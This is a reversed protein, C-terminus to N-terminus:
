ENNNEKLFDINVKRKSFFCQKGDFSFTDEYSVVALFSQSNLGHPRNSSEDEAQFIMAYSIGTATSEDVKFVNISGTVHRTTNKSTRTLFNEIIKERGKTVVGRLIFEGDDTFLKGYAPGDFTDRPVPYYAVLRECATVLDIQNTAQTQPTSSQSTPSQSNCGLLGFLFCVTLVGSVHRSM